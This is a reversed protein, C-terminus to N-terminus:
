TTKTEQFGDCRSVIQPMPTTTGDYNCVHGTGLPRSIYVQLGEGGNEKLDPHTCSHYNRHPCKVCILIFNGPSGMGWEVLRYGLEHQDLIKHCAKSQCIHVVKGTPKDEEDHEMWQRIEVIDNQVKGCVWCKHFDFSTESPIPAHEWESLKLM